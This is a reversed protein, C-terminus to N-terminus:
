TIRCRMRATAATSTPLQACSTSSRRVEASYTLFPSVLPRATSLEQLLFAVRAQEDMAVTTPAPPPKPWSLWHREHVDSNQRLDVSALHFGFVEVARRLTRLRGRALLAAGNAHLSRYLIDLDARFEAATGYPEAEIVSRRPLASQGLARATAFLRAYIGVIARRYPEAARRPSEDTSRKTLEALQASISVRESDLSLEAGLLHLEELYFDFVRKSQMGITQTLVEANVFPNGDRDGGIWSGIRMFSPLDANNFRRISPRM